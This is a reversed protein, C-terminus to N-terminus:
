GGGGGGKRKLPVRKSIDGEKRLSGGAEVKKKKPEGKSERQSAPTELTISGIM